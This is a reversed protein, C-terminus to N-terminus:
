AASDRFMRKYNLFEHYDRIYDDAAYNHSALVVLMANSSYRYQTAWVGPPILLGQTSSDLICEERSTGDDVLVNVSGNICVLVQICERHAHAGRVKENPVGHLFFVRQPKFPLQQDWQCVTLTGRLDSVQQLKVFEVGPIKPPLPQHLRLRAAVDSEYGQIIAPNGSVRAGPPVDCNVVSGDEIQARQGVEIGSSITVGCGISADSRVVTQGSRDSASGAFVSNAGVIVNNEIRTGVSLRVGSELTVDDGVCVGDTLVCYAGIVCARGLTAGPMVVATPHITCEQNNHQYISKM